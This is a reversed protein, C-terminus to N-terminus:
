KSQDADPTIPPYNTSQFQYLGSAIKYQALNSEYGLFHISESEQIPKGNETIEEPSKALISVTASTNAPISLNLHYIGDSIRWEVSIKGRISNYHGKAWTLTGGPQPKIFFHKYGPYKEDPNIGLVVKYIWEGVSGISYHNFSNMLWSQFGRGKVYGDWREWMTTAGQDIMYFWSPFRRSLLLQYAIDNRGLLTLQLMMPLTSCFGTSIRMDYKEIADLLLGFARPRLEEPLLNFHLALAYGAQTDGKIVGDEAVFEEIFTKKIESALASYHEADTTKGLVRAMKSLLETSLAFYSTAFVDKPIEGGKKPYDKSKITDGNLWDNYQVFWNGNRWILDPNKSHVYDIYRKVSAYHQKILRKDGYNLYVLWPVIVGCDAWAPAGGMNIIRKNKRTNPSIDAFSGNDFQADRIDQIWKTYFAAMDMNFISTQCFVQADGMWGLREDRQPCDTPVSILNDRQTWLINHWLQNLSSDSSEFAGVVPTDSAIACGTLMDLEPKIGPKLGKVEVYQFGHYTFHPHFERLEPENIIYFDKARATKLNTTYLTGKDRLMEAHRLRVKAKPTCTASNLRIKCWGAINQGLNLIFTGSKPETIAVPKVEEVIRIPENIQAVLATNISNDIVVKSWKSDDFNPLDWGVQEKQTNYTEGKFHDAKRIPGDRFMKWDSDSIIYQSTGDAFKISLQLLLRRDMGYVSHNYLFTLGIHGAYWGDALIAGIANDGERIFETVDYTQYQVRVHYNTWEPALYHDGIRNGNLYLEYEGLATSFIVAREIKGIIKFSKRLLTCPKSKKPLKRKIWALKTRPPGIWKAKWDASNLLGMSWFASDSWPSPVGNRDWVRVKWYCFMESKLPIGAYDIHTTEDSKIQKSDWLDGKDSDLMEQSSAVLIQYATQIQNREDSELIWSLRPKDVDIGLPNNLYECRLRKPQMM